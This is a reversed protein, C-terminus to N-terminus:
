FFFFHIFISTYHKGRAPPLHIAMFVLTSRKKQFNFNKKKFGREKAFNREIFCEFLVFRFVHNLKQSKQPKTLYGEVTHM